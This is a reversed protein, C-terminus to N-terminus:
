LTKMIDEKQQDFEEQTLVGMDLLEKIKKLKDLGTEEPASSKAVKSSVVFERGSRVVEGLLKRVFDISEAGGTVFNGIEDGNLVVTNQSFGKQITIDTLDGLGMVFYNASSDFVKKGSAFIFIKSNTLIFGTNNYFYVSLVLENEFDVDNLCDGLNDSKPNSMQKAYKSFNFDKVIDPGIFFYDDLKKRKGTFSKPHNRETFDLIKEVFDANEVSDKNEEWKKWMADVKDKIDATLQKVEKGGGFM